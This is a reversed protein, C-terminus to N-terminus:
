KGAPLPERSMRPVFTNGSLSASQSAVSVRLAVRSKFEEPTITGRSAADIDAKKAKLTLRAPLGTEGYGVVSVFVHEGEKLHRFNSAEPLVKVIADVLADLKSQEFPVAPEDEVALEGGEAFWEIGQRKGGGSLERKARDWASPQQRPRDPRTTASPDPALPFGAGTTLVVGAGEVYTPPVRNASSKIALGLVVRQADRPTAADSVADRLLKDMVVLDERWENGAAADMSETSVVAVASEAAASSGRGSSSGFASMARGYADFPSNQRPTALRGRAAEVTKARPAPKAPVPQQTTAAHPDNVNPEPLASSVPPSTQPEAPEAALPDAVAAPQAAPQAHAPTSRCATAAIALGLTLFRITTLTTAHRM